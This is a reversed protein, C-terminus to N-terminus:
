GGSGGTKSEQGPASEAKHAPGRMARSLLWAAAVAGLATGLTNLAFDLLSSSRTPIWAQTLELGLSLFAGGAVTV